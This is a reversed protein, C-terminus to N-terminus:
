ASVLQMIASSFEKEAGASQAQKPCKNVITAAPKMWAEEITKMQKMAEEKRKKKEKM